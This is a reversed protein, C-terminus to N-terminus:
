NKADNHISYNLDFTHVTGAIIYFSIGIQVLIYLIGLCLYFIWYLKEHQLSVREDTSLDSEQIENLRTYYSAIGISVFLISILILAIAFTGSAFPPMELSKVRTMHYFFLASTILLISYALGGFYVSEPFWINMEKKKKLPFFVSKNNDLYVHLSVIIRTRKHAPIPLRIFLV